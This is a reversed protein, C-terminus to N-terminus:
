FRLFFWVIGDRESKRGISIYERHRFESADDVERGEVDFCRSDVPDRSSFVLWRM